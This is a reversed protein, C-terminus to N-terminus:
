QAPRLSAATAAWLAGAGDLASQTIRAHQEEGAPRLGNRRLVFLQAHAGRPLGHGNVHRVLAFDLMGLRRLFHAAADLSEFLCRRGDSALLIRGEFEIACVCHDGADFLHVVPTATSAADFRARLALELWTTCASRKTKM